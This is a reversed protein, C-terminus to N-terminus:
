MAQPKLLVGKEPDNQMSTLMAIIEEYDNFIVIGVERSVYGCRVAIEVWTQTEASEGEADNLKAVFAATYRRKRWVEATNAPVSRSSRRVQDTLSYIEEKPFSKSLEFIRMAAATAKQYGLLDQHRLIKQNSMDNDCKRIFEKYQWKKDFSKQWFRYDYLWDLDNQGFWM